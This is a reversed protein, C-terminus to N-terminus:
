RMMSSMQAFNNLFGVLPEFSISRVLFHSPRVSPRVCPRVSPCVSLPALFLMDGWKMPSVYNFL